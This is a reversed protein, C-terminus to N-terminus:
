GFVVLLPIVVFPTALILGLLPWGFSRSSGPLALGVLSLILCVAAALFAWGPGPLMLLPYASIGFLVSALGVKSTPSRVPRGCHPCTPAHGSIERHCDPCIRLPM